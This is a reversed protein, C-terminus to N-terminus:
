AKRRRTASLALAGLAMLGSAATIPEPVPSVLKVRVPDNSRVLWDTNPVVNPFTEFTVYADAPKYNLGAAINAAYAPDFGLVGASGDFVNSDVAAGWLGGTSELYAVGNGKNESPRFTSLFEADAGGAATTINIHGGISVMRLLLEGDTVTTYKDVATRGASGALISFPDTTTPSLYVELVMGAGNVVQFDTTKDLYYDQISHFMVTMEYSTGGHTEGDTYLKNIASDEISTVKAIGWGDETAPIAGTAAQQLLGNLTTTGSAVKPDASTSGFGGYIAHEGPTSSNLTESYVSGMDVNAYKFEVFGIGTYLKNLIEDSATSAMAFSPLVAVGSLALVSLFKKM